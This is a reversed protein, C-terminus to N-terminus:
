ATIDHILVVIIRSIKILTM